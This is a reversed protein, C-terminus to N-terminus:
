HDNALLFDEVSVALLIRGRVPSVLEALRKVGHALLIKLIVKPHLSTKSAAAPPAKRMLPPVSLRRTLWSARAKRTLALDQLLRATGPTPLCILPQGPAYPLLPLVIWWSSHSAASPTIAPVRAPFARYTCDGARQQHRYPLGAPRSYFCRVLRNSCRPSRM